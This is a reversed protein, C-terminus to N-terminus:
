RSCQSSQRKFRDTSNGTSEHENIMKRRIGARLKNANNQIDASPKLDKFDSVHCENLQRDAYGRVNDVANLATPVICLLTILALTACTLSGYVVWTLAVPKSPLM